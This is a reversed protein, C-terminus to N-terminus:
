SKREKHDSCGAGTHARNGQKWIAPGATEEGDCVVVTGEPIQVTVERGRREIRIQGHPGSQAADPHRGMAASGIDSVYRGGISSKGRRM